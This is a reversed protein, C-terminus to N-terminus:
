TDQLVCQLIFFISGSVVAREKKINEPVRTVPDSALNTDPFNGPTFIQFIM